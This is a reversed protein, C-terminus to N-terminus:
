SMPPTRALGWEQLDQARICHRGLIRTTPLGDSVWRMITRTSVGAAIAAAPVSLWGTAAAADQHGIM